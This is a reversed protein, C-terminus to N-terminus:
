KATRRRGGTHIRPRKASVQARSNGEEKTPPCFYIIVLKLLIFLFPLDDMFLLIQRSFAVVTVKITGYWKWYM